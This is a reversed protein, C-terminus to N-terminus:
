SYIYSNPRNRLIHVQGSRVLWSLNGAVVQKPVGYLHSYYSIVEITFLPYEHKLMAKAVIDKRIKLNIQTRTM